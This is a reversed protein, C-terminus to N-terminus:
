FSLGTTTITRVFYYAHVANTNQELIDIICYEWIRFRLLSTSLLFIDSSYYVENRQFDIVSGPQWYITVDGNAAVESCKIEVPLSQM